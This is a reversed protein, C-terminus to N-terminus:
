AKARTKRQGGSVVVRVGMIMVMTMMFVCGDDARFSMMTRM